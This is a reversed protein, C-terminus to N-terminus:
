EIIYANVIEGYYATHYDRNAGHFDSDVDQPYFVNNDQSIANKDQEQKYIVKCELTLPLEKIAPVQIAKSDILTLNLLKVKDVLKGTKTGAVGLIKKDFDGLPINLTFEGNLDLLEKTCRNERVYIIFIPKAWEVGLSGWSITMVNVKDQAKTTVLCGKQLQKLIHEAYDFVNIEKM